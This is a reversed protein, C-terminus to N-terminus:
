GEGPSRQLDPLIVRVDGRRGRLREGIGITDRQGEKDGRPHRRILSGDRGQLRKNPGGGRRRQPGAEAQRHGGQDIDAKLEDIRRKLRGRRDTLLAMSIRGDIYRDNAEDIRANTLAIEEMVDRLGADAESLKKSLSDVSTEIGSRQKSLDDRWSDYAETQAEEIENVLNFYDDLTTPGDKLREKLAEASVEFRRKSEQFTSTM